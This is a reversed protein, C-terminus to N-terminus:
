LLVLREGGGGRLQDDGRGGSLFDGGNGGRLEDNGQGGFLWDGGDGGFLDDNGSRGRLVDNGGFAKITDDRNGGHLNPNNANDGVITAMIRGRILRPSRLRAATTHGARGFFQRPSRPLV